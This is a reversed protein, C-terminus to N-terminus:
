PCNKGIPGCIQVGSRVGLGTERRPKVMKLIYFLRCRAKEQLFLALFGAIGEKKYRYRSRKPRNAVRHVPSHDAACVFLGERQFPRLSIVVGQLDIGPNSRIVAHDVL